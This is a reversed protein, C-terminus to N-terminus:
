LSEAKVLMIKKVVNNRVERTHSFINICANSHHLVCGMNVGYLERVNIKLIVSLNKAVKYV